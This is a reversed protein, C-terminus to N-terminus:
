ENLVTTMLAARTLLYRPLFFLFPIGLFLVSVIFLPLYRLFLLLASRTYRRVCRASAYCIVSYSPIPASNGEKEDKLARTLVANWLLMDKEMHLFFLLLFLLLVATIVLILIRAKQMEWAAFLGLYSVFLSFLAWFLLRLVRGGGRLLAFRTLRKEICFSFLLSFDAGKDLVARNCFALIGEWFPSLLYLALCLAGLAAGFLSFPSVGFALLFPAQAICFLLVALGLLSFSFLMVAFFLARMVSKERYLPRLVSAAAKTTISPKLM